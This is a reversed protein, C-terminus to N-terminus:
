RGFRRQRASFEELARRLDLEAFSLWGVPTHWIEAYSGQWLLVDKPELEGGAFLLLDPDPLGATDLKAALREETIPAAPSEALHASAARAIEDRSGYNLLWLLVRGEAPFPREFYPVLAAPLGAAKGRLALRADMGGAAADLKRAALPCARRVEESGPQEALWARTEPAFFSVVRLGPALSFASRAIAAAQDVAELLSAARGKPHPADADAVIADAVIALHRLPSESM